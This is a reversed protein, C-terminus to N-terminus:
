FEFNFCQSEFATRFGLKLCIPASTDARASILALAISQKRLESLRYAVLARYLGKGRLLPDCSGGQLYGAGEVVRSIATAGPRGRYRALFARYNLGKEFDRRIEAHVQQAKVGTQGWGANCAQAYEDLNHAGMEEVTVDIPMETLFDKEEIYLGQLPTISSPKLGTLFQALNAPESHPYIYWRFDIKRDRYSAYMQAVKAEADQGRFHTRYVGNLFDYPVVSNVIKYFEPTDEVQSEPKIWASALVCREVRQSLSSM